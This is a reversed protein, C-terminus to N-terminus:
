MQPLNRGQKKFGHFDKQKLTYHIYSVQIALWDKIMQLLVGLYPAVTNLEKLQLNDYNLKHHQTKEQPIPVTLTQLTTAVKKANTSLWPLDPDKIGYDFFM